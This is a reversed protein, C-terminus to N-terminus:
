ASESVPNERRPSSPPGATDASPAGAPVGASGHSGTGAPVQVVVGLGTRPRRPAAFRRYVPREVSTYVLTAVALSVVFYLALRGVAASTSLVQPGGLWRHGYALVAYHWLYFAFSIEGLWVMVRRSVPTPRGDADCAAAATIVLGLPLAMIAVYTYNTPLQAQVFYAAVALAVAGGLSLSLRQGTMVIRALLIGMVFELM